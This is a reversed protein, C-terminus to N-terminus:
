RGDFRKKTLQGDHARTRIQEEPIRRVISECSKEKKTESEGLTNKHNQELLSLDKLLM